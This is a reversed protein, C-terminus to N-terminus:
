GRARFRRLGALVVGGLVVFAATGPEPVVTVQMGNLPGFTNVTGGAGLNSAQVTFTITGAGDPTIGNINVVTNSNWGDTLSSGGTQLNYVTGGTPTGATVTYTTWRQADVTNIRSGFLVLSYTFGVNLGSLTLTSTGNNPSFIGDDTLLTNAFVGGNLGADPAQGRNWGRVGSFGSLSLNIGSGLGSQNFLLDNFTGSSATINNWTNGASSVMQGGGGFPNNAAGSVAEATAVGFDIVVMDARSTQASLCLLAAACAGVVNKGFYSSSM